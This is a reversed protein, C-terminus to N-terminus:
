NGGSIGLGPIRTKEELRRLLLALSWTVVFYAIMVMGWTWFIQFTIAVILKGQRTLETYAIVSALSSNLVLNVMENGLPPICIRIAQPLIILRMTGMYTLGISRGAEMQGSPIAAIAGRITECQYAASNLGLAFIASLFSRKGPGFLSEKVYDIMPSILNDLPGLYSSITFLDSTIDVGINQIHKGLQLGFHIFMFQVLLPTNRFFDTYLTAITQLPRIKWPEIIIKNDTGKTISSLGEPLIRKTILLGIFILFVRWGFIGLFTSSNKGTIDFDVLIETLIVLWLLLVLIPRGYPIKKKEFSGNSTLFLVGLYTLGIGFIMRFFADPNGIPAFIYAVQASLKFTNSGLHFAHFDSLASYVCVIGGKIGWEEAFPVGLLLTLGLLRIMMTRHNNSISIGLFGENDIKNKNVYYNLISILIGIGLFLVVGMGMGHIRSGIIIVPIILWFLILTRELDGEIMQKLTTPATKCMALVIGLFFGLLIGIIVIKVTAKLGELLNDKTFDVFESFDSLDMIEFGLANDQGGNETYLITGNDGVIIGLFATKMAIDNITFDGEIPLLQPGVINGGDKSLAIYGNEGSLLIKTTSLVEISTLNIGLTTSMNESEIEKLYWYYGVTTTLAEQTSKLIQGDSTIAYGRNMGYFGISIINSNSVEEPTERIEWTEGNNESGLILGSSGSILGREGEFVIDNLDESVLSEIKIWNQQKFCWIEGNDSVIFIENNSNISVSHADILNDMKIEIWNESSYQKYIVSGNNGAAVILEQNAYAAKLDENTPSDFQIWEGMKEGFIIEGDDGFVWADGNEDIIAANYNNQSDSDILNWSSEYYGEAFNPTIFIIVIM